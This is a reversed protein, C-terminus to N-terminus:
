ASHSVMRNRMRGIADKAGQRIGGAASDKVKEAVAALWCAFDRTGKRHRPGRNRLVKAQQAVGAQNAFLAISAMTEIMKVRLRQPFNIMPQLVVASEPLVFKGAQFSEDLGIWLLSAFRLM